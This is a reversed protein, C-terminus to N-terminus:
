SVRGPSVDAHLGVDVDEHVIIEKLQKWAAKAQQASERKIVLPVLPYALEEATLRSAKRPQLDYYGYPTTPNIKIRVDRGWKPHALGYQKWERTTKSQRKNVSALSNLLQYLRPPIKLVRVPSTDADAGTEAAQLQRVIANSYYLPRGHLGAKCYPCSGAHSRTAPDWDLCLKRVSKQGTETGVPIWFEFVSTMEGILRVETWRKTFDWLRGDFERSDTNFM